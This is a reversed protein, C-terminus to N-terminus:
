SITVSSKYSIEDFFSALGGTIKKRNFQEVFDPDEHYLAKQKWLINIEALKGAIKEADDVPAVYGSEYENLIEAAAGPHVLGLIPKGSGMYEFLKGSKVQRYEPDFNSIMWLLDAKMLNAVAEDHPVYGYDTYLDEFGMDELLQLIRDSLGGQFHLHVERRKITGRDIARELATLFIDPQNEEYFLGSYLINLKYDHYDLSGEDVEDFDDPDFGHPLVRFNKVKGPFAKKLDQLMYFDLTVVGDAGELCKREMRSMIRRQWGYLETMFHNNHWSDRYDLVAPIGSESSLKEALMHNSFPPATSFILDIDEEEIIERGAQIGPKIWGRKNDPYMLLRSFRRLNETFKEPLEDMKKSYHGTKHFPTNAKIRRIDPDIYDLEKELSDDFYPYIGPEPCLIIPNWGYEPLYKVFKLPRQVGSGGM